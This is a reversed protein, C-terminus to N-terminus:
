PYTLQLPFNQLRQSGGPHPSLQSASLGSLLSSTYYDGCAWKCDLTKLQALTLNAVLKGVYPFVPDNATAPQTDKCKTPDISEDHWVLAHGDKTIGNDLELVTAGSILGHAFAAITSEVAEGRAGRHGELQYYQKYDGYKDNNRKAPAASVSTAALGATALLLLASSVM